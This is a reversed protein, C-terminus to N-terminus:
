QGIRPEQHTHRLRDLETAAETDAEAYRSVALELARATDDLSDRTEGLLHSLTEALVVWAGYVPNQGGGFFAPRHMANAAGVLSADVHDKAVQYEAAVSPLDDKAVVLLKYLDAALEKGADAM